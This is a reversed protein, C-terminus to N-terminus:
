PTIGPPGFHWRFFRHGSPVSKGLVAFEDSNVWTPTAPGCKLTWAAIFLSSRNRFTSPLPTLPPSAPLVKPITPIGPTDTGVVVDVERMRYSANEENSYNRGQVETKGESSWGLCLDLHLFHAGIRLCKGKETRTRPVPPPPLWRFTFQKGQFGPTQAGARLNLSFCLM